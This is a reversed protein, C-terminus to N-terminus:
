HGERHLLGGPFARVTEINPAKEGDNAVERKFREWGEPSFRVVTAPLAPARGNPTQVVPVLKVDMGGGITRQYFTHSDNLVMEYPFVPATVAPIEFEVAEEEPEIDTPEGLEGPAPPPEDGHLRRREELNEDLAM